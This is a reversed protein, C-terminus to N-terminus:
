TVWVIGCLYALIHMRASSSFKTVFM